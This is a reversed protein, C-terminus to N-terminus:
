YPSHFISGNAKLASSTPKSYINNLRDLIDIVRRGTHWGRGNAVNSVKFADNISADLAALCAQKINQMLMVFHMMRNFHTDITAQETHTLPTNNMPKGM